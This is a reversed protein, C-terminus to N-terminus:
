ELSVILYRLSWYNNNKTMLIAHNRKKQKLVSKYSDFFNSIDGGAKEEGVNLSSEARSFSSHNLTECFFMAQIESHIVRGGKPSFEM